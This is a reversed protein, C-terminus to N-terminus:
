KASDRQKYSKFFDLVESKKYYTKGDIKCYSIIGKDRYRQLTRKTVGLLKCLDQNDLLSDGDLCDKLANSQNLLFDIKDFRSIIIKMWKEFHDQDVSMILINTLYNEHLYGINHYFM